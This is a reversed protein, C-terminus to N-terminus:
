RVERRVGWTCSEVTKCPDPVASPEPCLKTALRHQICATVEDVRVNCRPFREVCSESGFFSFVGEEGNPCRFGQDRFEHMRVGAASAENAFWLCLRRRDEDTVDVLRTAGSAPLTRDATVAEDHHPHAQAQSEYTPTGLFCGGLSLESCLARLEEVEETFLDGDLDKVHPVEALQGCRLCVEVEAVPRGEGDFFVFAHHPDFQCHSAPRLVRGGNPLRIVRPPDAVVRLLRTVQDASLPKGPANVSGCLTGDPAVVCQDMALRGDDFRFAYGRVTTYKTAPFPPVRTLPIPHFSAPKVQRQSGFM